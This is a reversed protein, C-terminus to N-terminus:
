ELYVELHHPGFGAMESCRIVRMRKGQWTVISHVPVPTGECFMLQSAATEVISGSPNKYVIKTNPAPEMRCNRTEPEGYLPGGSGRRLFSTIECTDMLFPSILSM